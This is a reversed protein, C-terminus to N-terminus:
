NALLVSRVWLLGSRGHFGEIVLRAVEKDTLLLDGLKTSLGAALDDITSKAPFRSPARPRGGNQSPTRASSAM